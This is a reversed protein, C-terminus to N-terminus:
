GKLPGIKGVGWLAFQPTYPASSCRQGLAGEPHSFHEVASSDLIATVVWM